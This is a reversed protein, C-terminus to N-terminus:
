EVPSPSATCGHDSNPLTNCRHSSTICPTHYCSAHQKNHTANRHVGGINHHKCSVRRMHLALTHRQQCMGRPPSTIAAATCYRPASHRHVRDPLVDCRLSPTVHKRTGKVGAWKDDRVPRQVQHAWETLQSTSQSGAAHSVETDTAIRM